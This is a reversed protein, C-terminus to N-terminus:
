EIIILNCSLMHPARCQRNAICLLRMQTRVRPPTPHASGPKNKSRMGRQSKYHLHSKYLTDYNKHTRSQRNLQHTSIM